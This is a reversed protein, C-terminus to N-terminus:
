SSRAILEKLLDQARKVNVMRKVRRDSATKGGEPPAEPPPANGGDGGAPAAGGGAPAPGGEGGPAMGAEAIIKQIEEPPVGADQLQQIIEEISMDGPPAGGEGGGPPPGGAGMAPDGAPAPPPGGMGGGMGGGMDPPPMDDARKTKRRAIQQRANDAARKRYDAAVLDARHSGMSLFEYLVEQKDADNATKALDAAPVTASGPIAVPAAPTGPAAAAPAAADGATKGVLESIRGAAVDEAIDNITFLLEGASKNFHPYLEALEMGAWKKGDIENNDTRIPTSSGPDKKTNGTVSNLENKPDEGTLRISNHVRTHDMGGGDAIKAFTANLKDVATKELPEVGVDKVDEDNEKAHSGEENPQTADDVDKSASETSGPMNKADPESEAEARKKKAPAVSIDAATKVVPGAGLIADLRDNLSQGPKLTRTM